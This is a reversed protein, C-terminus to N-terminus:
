KIEGAKKLSIKSLVPGMLEHIVATGIVLTMLLTSFESFAKEKSVLLALGIVIGGQPLLGGATYKKVEKPVDLMSSSGWIGIYKGLARAVVFLLILLSNGSLMSLDLHLGSLTFFVVFILEETYREILGFIQGKQHNFNIVVVGMALTSLLEDVKLMSATGYCTILVGLIMVILAGDSEKSFVRSLKNLIVGFVAGVMLAVGISYGLQGLSQLFSMDSNGMLMKASALSLTFFIIGMIDDFAAIGLVSSSVPGEAKYESIVALTASPDTPAALSALLMSFALAMYLSDFINFVFQLALFFLAFVLVYALLSEALTMILYNKGERKIKNFSLSGGIHFTIVALSLNVLPDGQEIFSTPVIGLVQPNLLIGAIIYGSIKPLTLKVALEGMLFGGFLIIGTSLLVDM